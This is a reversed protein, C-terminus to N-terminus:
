VKFKNVANELESVAISVLNSVELLKKSEEELKEGVRSEEEIEKVLIMMSKSASDMASSIQEMTAGLEEALASLDETMHAVEKVTSEIEQFKKESEQSAKELEIVSNEVNQSFKKTTNVKQVIDKLIENIKGTSRKSEEALKRIEDAVVAFGRGAEGARAAEIAANLALLNTQEAINNITTVIEEINKASKELTGVEHSTEVVEKKVKELSNSVKEIETVGDIVLNVVKEMNESLKTVNESIVQSSSASEEIGSTTEEISSSITQTHNLVLEVFSLNKKVVDSLKKSSESTIDVSNRIKDKDNHVSKVLESISKHMSKLAQAFIGLEDKRSLYKEFVKQNTETFDYNTIKELVPLFSDFSNVLLFVMLSALLVIIAIIIIIIYVNTVIAKQFGEAQIDAALYSVINGSKDKLPYYLTILTGWEESNSIKSSFPEDFDVKKSIGELKDTYGPDSFNEGYDTGDVIITYTMDTFNMKTTYLYKMNDYKKLNENLYSHLTEFEDTGKRMDKAVKALLEIDLGKAIERLVSFYGKMSLVVVNETSKYVIFASTLLFIFSVFIILLIFKTKLSNLRKM